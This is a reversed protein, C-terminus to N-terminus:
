PWMNIKLSNRQRSCTYYAQPNRHKRKVRQPINHSEVKSSKSHCFCNCQTCQGLINWIKLVKRCGKICRRYPLKYYRVNAVLHGLITSEMSDFTLVEDHDMYLVMDVAHLFCFGDARVPTVQCSLNYVYICLQDWPMDLSYIISTM